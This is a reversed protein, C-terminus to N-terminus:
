GMFVSSGGGYAARSRNANQIRTAERLQRKRDSASLQARIPPPAKEEYPIGRAAAEAMAMQKREQQDAFARPNDYAFKQKQKDAFVQGAGEPTMEGKAVKSALRQQIRWDPAIPKSGKSLATFTGPAVGAAKDAQMQYLEALGGSKGVGTFGQERAEAAMDSYQGGSPKDGFLKKSADQARRLSEARSSASRGMFGSVRESSVGADKAAGRAKDIAKDRARGEPMKLARNLQTAAKQRGRLEAMNKPAAYGTSQNGGGGGGGGGGGAAAARDRERREAEAWDM